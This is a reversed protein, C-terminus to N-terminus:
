MYIMNIIKNDYLVCNFFKIYHDICFCAYVM